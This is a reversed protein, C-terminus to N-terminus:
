LKEFEAELEKIKAHALERIVEPVRKCGAVANLSVSLIQRSDGIKGSTGVLELHGCYYTLECIDSYVQKAQEYEEIMRKMRLYASESELQRKKIATIDIM